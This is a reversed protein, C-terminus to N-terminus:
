AVGTALNMLTYVRYHDQRSQFVVQLLKTREKAQTHELPPILEKGASGGGKDDKDM